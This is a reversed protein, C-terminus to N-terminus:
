GDTGDHDKRELCEEASANRPLSIGFNVQTMLKTSSLFREYTKFLHTGANFYYVPDNKYPVIFAQVDKDTAFIVALTKEKLYKELWVATLMPMPPISIIKDKLFADAIHDDVTSYGLNTALKRLYEVIEYETSSKRELISRESLTRELLGAIHYIVEGVKADFKLDQEALLEAIAKQLVKNLTKFSEKDTAHHNSAL